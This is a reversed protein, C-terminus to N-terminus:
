KIGEGTAVAMRARIPICRSTRPPHPQPQDRQMGTGNRWRPRSSKGNRREKEEKRVAVEETKEVQPNVVWVGREKHFHRRMYGEVATSLGLEEDESLAGDSKINELLALRAALRNEHSLERLFDKTHVVSNRTDYMNVIAAIGCTERMFTTM